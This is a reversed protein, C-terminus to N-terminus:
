GAQEPGGWTEAAAELLLHSSTAGPDQHGASREGLYSARGKRAVLPITDRMGQGAADASQRLADEFSPVAVVDYTFRDEQRATAKLSVRLAEEADTSLADVVLVEFYPREPAGAKQASGDHSTEEVDESDVRQELMALHLTRSRFSENALARVISSVLQVFRSEDRKVFLKKLHTFTHRNPFSWYLEIPELLAVIEGIETWLADAEARKLDFEALTSVLGGLRHWSDLRLRTANYHVGLFSYNGRQSIATEAGGSTANAPMDPLSSNRNM